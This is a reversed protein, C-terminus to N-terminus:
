CIMKNLYPFFAYNVSPTSGYPVMCQSLLVINLGAGAKSCARLEEGRAPSRRQDRPTRTPVHRLPELVSWSLTGGTPHKQRRHLLPPPPCHPGLEELALDEKQCRGPPPRSTHIVSPIVLASRTSSLPAGTRLAPPCCEQAWKERRLAFGGASGLPLPSPSPRLPLRAAWHLGDPLPPSATAAKSRPVSAGSCHSVHAHNRSLVGGFPFLPLLSATERQWIQSSKSFSRKLVSACPESGAQVRCCAPTCLAWIGAAM